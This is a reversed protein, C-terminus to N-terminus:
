IKNKIFEIAKIFNPVSTNGILANVYARTNTESNYNLRAKKINEIKSKASIIKKSLEVFNGPDFFTFCNPFFNKEYTDFLYTRSLIIKGSKGLHTAYSVPGSGQQSVEYYPFLNIDMSAILFKFEDEDTLHNIFEIRNYIDRSSTLKILYANYKDLEVFNIKKNSNNDNITKPNLIEAKKSYNAPHISSSIVLKFNKPLLKLAEIAVDLGKYVGYFGFCGIYTIDKDLHYKEIFVDRIKDNNFKLIDAKNISVIPHFYSSIGVLSLKKSVEKQHVIISINKGIKQLNKIKSLLISQYCRYKDLSKREKRKFILSFKFFKFELESMNVIKSSVGVSHFTILINEGNKAEIIKEIFKIAKEPKKHFLGLECQINIYDYKTVEKIILNQFMKNYESHILDQDLKICEVKTFYNELDPMLQKTYTANGCNGEFSSVIGLTKNKLDSLEM